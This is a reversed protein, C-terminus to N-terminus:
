YWKGWPFNFESHPTAYWHMDPGKGSDLAIQSCVLSATCINNRAFGADELFRVLGVLSDGSIVCDQFIIVKKSTDACLTKPIYINFKETAVIAHDSPPCAFLPGRKDEQIGLYVPLYRDSQVMAISGVIAPPGSTMLLVDAQFVKDVSKLLDSAGREVDAWTFFIRARELRVTRLGFYFTGISGLLGVATAIITFSNMRGTRWLWRVWATMSVPTPKALVKIFMM